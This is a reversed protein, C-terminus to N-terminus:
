MDLCYSVVLSLLVYGEEANSVVPGIHHQSVKVGAVGDKMHPILYIHDGTVNIVIPMNSVSHSSGHNGDKELFYNQQEATTVINMLSLNATQLISNTKPGCCLVLKTFPLVKGSELQITKNNRNIATVKDNDIFKAGTAIASDRMKEIALQADIAWGGEQHIGSTGKPVKLQVKNEIDERTMDTYAAGVLDNCARIQDGSSKSNKDLLAIISTQHLFEDSGVEKWLSLARRM